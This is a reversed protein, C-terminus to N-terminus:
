THRDPGTEAAKGIGPLVASFGRKKVEESDGDLAPDPVESGTFARM